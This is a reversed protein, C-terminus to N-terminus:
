FAATLGLSYYRMQPTTGINTELHQREKSITLLDSGNVYLGLNSIFTKALLKKPIDYSIQVRALNIRDNKFLWFDSNRFNNDGNNGTSLSPYTATEATAETWRGRMAATYKANIGSAWYYSSSKFGYSGSTSNALVFLSFNNWKVTTNLGLTLPAGAYGGRGLYVQDNNDVVGDNNVDVYKISGPKVTGFSQPVPAGPSKNVMAEIDAVSFFGDSKLGYLADVPKGQRKQYEDVYLVDNRTYAKTDYYTAVFGINLNVKQIQKNLSIGLDYGERQDAQYNSYPIFSSPSPNNVSLFNPYSNVDQGPIGLLRSYFYSASVQVMNNFLSADLGLSIEKRREFGLAYNEGRLVDTTRLQRGEQWSFYAGNNTSYSSRFLNFGTNADYDLDTNIIGASATLKLDDIFKAESLFKEKSIRWGVSVTPSFADRQKPAFRVSHVMNQTFDAYYKNKYNYNFQFGLNANGIAHYVESEALTYGHAVLMTSFNHIKDYDFKYKLAGSFFKTQRQYANDLSRSNNNLDAGVRTLKSIYDGDADTAWTPTYVAYSNNDINQSYQTNYDIAFQTDFTLGKLISALNFNLSADFQYKRYTGKIIGKTYIDAFPNTTQTATGALFYQNNIIFPSSEIYALSAADAKDLYSIPILPSILNPKLTAANAWFNGQASNGDYFTVSTNIKSTIMSSLKIDLNGRINFRNEGEKKGNGIDLLTTTNYNGVNVYFMAKDNGGTYETVIESRRSFKKLYDSSYFDVNPYRYPNTGSAYNALDTDSTYAGNNVISIKDNVLAENYLSLYEASGLYEAFRKPAMIGTNLRVDFRNKKEAGRKTTISIVGKAARSGYLAVAAASKLVTIEEMESPIVNFEDRPVGDVLVIRGNMGWINGHYGPIYSSLNDLSNTTYNSPLMNAINVTSVGGLIDAKDVTNFAVQVMETSQLVITQLDTKAEVSTTKYGPANITLFSNKDVTLGFEGTENAVSTQNNVGTITAGSIPNGKGNVVVGSVIIKSDQASM